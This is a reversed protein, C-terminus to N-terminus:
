HIIIIVVIHNNTSQFKLFFCYFLNNSFDFQFKTILFFFFSHSISLYSFYLIFCRVERAKLYNVNNTRDRRTNLLALLLEKFDGSTDDIIDSELTRNYEDKYENKIADLEDDNRSCLIDTLTVEKTGM